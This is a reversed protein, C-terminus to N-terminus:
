WLLRVRKLLILIAHTWVCFLCCIIWPCKEVNWIRIYLKAYYSQELKDQNHNQSWCDKNFFPDNSSISLHKRKSANIETIARVLCINFLWPAEGVCRSSWHACANHYTTPYTTREKKKSLAQNSLSLCWRLISLPDM